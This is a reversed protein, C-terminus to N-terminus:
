PAYMESTSMYANDNLPQETETNSKISPKPRATNRKAPGPAPRATHQATVILLSLILLTPQFIRSSTSDKHLDDLSPLSVSAISPNKLNDSLQQQVSSYKLLSDISQSERISATSKRKQPTETAAPERTLSRRTQTPRPHRGQCLEPARRLSSRRLGLARRPRMM